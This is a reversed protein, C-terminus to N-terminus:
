GPGCAPALTAPPAAGTPCTANSDAGGANVLERRELQRIAEQRIALKRKPTRKM